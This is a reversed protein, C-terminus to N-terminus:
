MTSSDGEEEQVLRNLSGSVLGELDLTVFSFGRALLGETIKERLPLLDEPRPLAVVATNFPFHRVRVERFGLERLFVEAARVREIGAADLAMGYPFRSALCPESPRDWVELGYARAMERIEPKTVGAEVFPHVIGDEDAARLGPRYDALDTSNMGDMLVDRGQEGAWRLALSDRIKRCLYCRRPPNKRFDEGEMENIELFQHPIDWTEVFRRVAEEEGAPNLPSSVTVTLTNKGMVQSLLYALLTSDVGGSLLLAPKEWRNVVAKIKNLIKERNV